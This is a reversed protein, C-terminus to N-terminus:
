FAVVSGFGADERFMGDRRNNNERHDDDYQRNEEAEQGVGFAERFGGDFIEGAIIVFIIEVLGDDGCVFDAGRILFFREGFDHFFVFFDTERFDGEALEEEIVGFFGTVGCRRRIITILVRGGDM